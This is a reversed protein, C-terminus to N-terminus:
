KKITKKTVTKKKTTKKVTKKKVTKKKTTKKKTTKKKAFKAQNAERAIAKKLATEQDEGIGQLFKCKPYKDCGYFAGYISKRLLLKGEKCKPCPTNELEGKSQEEEKSLAKSPCDPNICLEQPRKAKRIVQILPYKCSECDKDAGKFLAGAPLSFTTKCEPYSDCAVFNGFKGRRIELTGENCVPCEGVRAMAKSTQKTADSLEKGIDKENKRFQELIKTLIKKADDLVDEKRKKEERIQEMELEFNRTLDVNIIDPCFKKLTAITKIGLDTAEISKSKVYGRQFLNDVITARTSKTGLGNKELEKIISAQTYRKPPTTEKSHLEIKSIDIIDGKTFKPLEEEKFNAYKGYFVHWGKKITTTGKTVFLETNVNLIAKITQRIAPEAFCALFRRVILDYLDFDKGTLNGVEGTPHIAPHAPDSKTGENPKLDTKLLQMCLETYNPQSKLSQIISKLNLEKPLKQSSTRPYSILGAIYLSQALELTRKPPIKLTRYAEIQLSTLDFPTPPQQNFEKTDISDVIAEKQNQTKAMAEDAKPKEWFKDEKHWSILPEKLKTNGNLEIQWYPVPIFAKIDLERDVIIKLAPGQVRGSSLIKYMGSAAKISLTLARSVNIGYMWDLFHRTEGANAQGWNITKNKNEYSDILAKKTLTSFKMRNADDQKLAYKIVNHGIVEGEIDYDTAVTFKDANKGLKRLLTIFKKSPSSGKQTESAPKWEIDFVPYDWKGKNKEALGYLHGLASCVVIDQSGHTVLFYPVGNANERIAKGDALAEAIKKAATPKECIILEYKASM